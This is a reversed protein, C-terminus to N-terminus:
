YLTLNWTPHNLTGQSPLIRPHDVHTRGLTLPHSVDGAVVRLRALSVTAIVTPSCTLRVEDPRSVAVGVRILECETITPQVPIDSPRSRCSQSRLHWGDLEGTWGSAIHHSDTMGAVVASLWGGTDVMDPGARTTTIVMRIVPNASAYRAVGDFAVLAQQTRGTGTATTLSMRTIDVGSLLASEVSASTALGPGSDHVEV